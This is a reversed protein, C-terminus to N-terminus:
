LKQMTLTVDANGPPGAYYAVWYGAAPYRVLKYISGNERKEPVEAEGFVDAFSPAGKGDVFTISMARINKEPGISIQITESDSMEYLFGDSFEMKPKGWQERLAEASAGITIKRYEKLLPAPPATQAPSVKKIYSAQETNGGPTQAYGHASFIYPVSVLATFLYLARSLRGANGFLSRQKM